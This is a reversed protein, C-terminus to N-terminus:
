MVFTTLSRGVFLRSGFGKSISIYEGKQSLASSDATFWESWSTGPDFTIAFAKKSFGFCVLAALVFTTFLIIREYKKEQLPM